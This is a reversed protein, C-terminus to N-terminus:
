RCWAPSSTAHPGSKRNASVQKRRAVRNTRSARMAGAMRGELKRVKDEFRHRQRAAEAENKRLVYRVGEAEVECVQEHFLGLQLTGHKLLRRIQPDTLATIYHLNAAQLAQQGKSKVMGRDGVFIVDQVQFKEQLIKLQDVVTTPDSTHGPWVRVALPEGENDSLLGIV